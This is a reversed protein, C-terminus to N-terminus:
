KVSRQSPWPGSRRPFRSSIGNGIRITWTAVVGRELAVEPSQLMRHAGDALPGAVGEIGLHRGAQDLAAGRDKPEIVAAGCPILNQGHFGRRRQHELPIREVPPESRHATEGIQDRRVEGTM